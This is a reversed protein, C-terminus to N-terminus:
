LSHNSPPRRARIMRRKKIDSPTKKDAVGLSFLPAAPQPNSSSFPGFNSSSTTGFTFSAANNSANYKGLPLATTANTQFGAAPTTAGFPAAAPTSAGFSATSSNPAGFSTTTPTSTGFPASAPTPAGFPAVTPTPVGFPAAAPTSAGFPAAAHTPANFSAPASAGFPAAASSTSAGFSFSPQKTSTTQSGQNNNTSLQFSPTSSSSSAFIPPVSTSSTTTTASSNFPPASTVAPSPAEFKSSPVSATQTNNNASGFTFTSSGSASGFTFAPKSATSTELTKSPTMTTSQAVSSGFHFMPPNVAAVPGLAAPVSTSTTSSDEKRKNPTTSLSNSTTSATLPVNGFIFPKPEVTSSPNKTSPYNTCVNTTKELNEGQISSIASNNNKFNEITFPKSTFTPFSSVENSSSKPTAFDKNKSYEVKSKDFTITSASSVEKSSSNSVVSDKEESVPIKHEKRKFTDKSTTGFNFIPITATSTKMGTTNTTNKITSAASVAATTLPVSEYKPEEKPDISKTNKDSTSTDKSFSSIPSTGFKFILSKKEASSKEVKQKTKSSGFDFVPTTSTASISNNSSSEMKDKTAHSLVDSKNQERQTSGGFIFGSATITPEKQTSGGFIFGSATINAKSSIETNNNNKFLEDDKKRRKQASNELVTGLAKATKKSSSEASVTSTENENKLSKAKTAECSVCKDVHSENYCYCMSCQWKNDDLCNWLDIKTHSKSTSTNKTNSKFLRKQQNDPPRPALYAPLRKPHQIEEIGLSSFV